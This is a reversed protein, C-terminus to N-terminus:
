SKSFMGKNMWSATVCSHDRLGYETAARAALHLMPMQKGTCSKRSRATLMSQLRIM